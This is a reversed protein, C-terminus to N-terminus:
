DHVLSMVARFLAMLCLYDYCVSLAQSGVIGPDWVVTRWHDLRQGELAIAVTGNNMRREGAPYLLCVRESHSLDADGDGIHIPPDCIPRSLVSVEDMRNDRGVMRNMIRRVPRDAVPPIVVLGVDSFLWLALMPVEEHVSVATDALGEESFLGDSFAVTPQPGDAESPFTSFATWFVSDCWDAWTNRENDEISGDDPDSINWEDSSVTGQYFFFM